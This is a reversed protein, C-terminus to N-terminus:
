GDRVRVSIGNFGGTGGGNIGGLRFPEHEVVVIRGVEFDANLHRPHLATALEVRSLKCPLQFARVARSKRCASGRAPICPCAGAQACRIPCVLRGDGNRVSRVRRRVVGQGNDASVRRPQVGHFGCQAVSSAQGHRIFYSLGDFRICVFYAGHLVRQAVRPIFITGM